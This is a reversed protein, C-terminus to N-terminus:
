HYNYMGSVKVNILESNQECLTNIHKMHMESYVITKERFM